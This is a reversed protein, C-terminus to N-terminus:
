FAAPQQAPRDPSSTGASAKGRGAPGQGRHQLLWRYCPVLAEADETGRRGEGEWGGDSARPRCPAAPRPSCRSSHLLARRRRRRGEWRQTGSGATRAAPPPAGSAALWPAPASSTPSSPM